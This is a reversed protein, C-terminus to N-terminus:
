NITKTWASSAALVPTRTQNILRHIYAKPASKYARVSLSLYPSLKELLGFTSSSKNPISTTGNEVNCSNELERNYVLNAPWEIIRCWRAEVLRYRGRSLEFPRASDWWHTARANPTGIQHGPKIGLIEVCAVTLWLRMGVEREMRSVVPTNVLKIPGCAPHEIEQVM